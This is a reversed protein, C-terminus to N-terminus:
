EMGVQFSRDLCRNASDGRIGFIALWQVALKVSEQFKANTTEPDDVRDVALCMGDAEHGDTMASMDIFFYSSLYLPLASLRDGFGAERHAANLEAKIREM